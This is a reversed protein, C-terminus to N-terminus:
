NILLTKTKKWLWCGKKFVVRIGEPIKGAYRFIHWAKSMTMDRWAEYSSTETQAKRLEDSLLEAMYEYGQTHLIKYGKLIQEVLGYKKFATSYWVGIFRTGRSHIICLTDAMISQWIRHTTAQEYYHVMGKRLLCLVCHFAKVNRCEANENRMKLSFVM